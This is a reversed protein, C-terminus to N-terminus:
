LQHKVQTLVDYCDWISKQVSKLVKLHKVAIIGDELASIINQIARVIELITRLKKESLTKQEDQWGALLLCTCNNFVCSKIVTSSKVFVITVLEDM